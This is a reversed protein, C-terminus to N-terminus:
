LILPQKKHYQEFLNFIQFLENRAEDLKYLFILIKSKFLQDSLM